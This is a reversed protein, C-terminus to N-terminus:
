NFNGTPTAEQALYQSANSYYMEHGSYASDPGYYEILPCGRQDDYIGAFYSVQAMLIAGRYLRATTADAELGSQVVRTRESQSLQDFDEHGFMLRSRQALDSVFFGRYTHFPYYGDNFMRSLHPEERSAGPIITVVFARLFRDELDRDKDFKKPYSKLLIRLPTCGIVAGAVLASLETLFLRRSLSRSGLLGGEQVWSFSEKPELQGLVHPDHRM